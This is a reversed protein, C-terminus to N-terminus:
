APLRFWFRTSGGSSEVGVRGGAQEVLQRVIALGIGAGGSARTRSRDVRYFREFVHPLDAAPIEAGTNTVTVLVSDAELRASITVTGGPPTYRAANQLLNAMVQSVHDPVARGWLRDPLALRLQMGGRELAPGALEAAARIASALELDVTAPTASPGGEEALTDLSRSLRTLREVEERLSDLTEPATPIVGDRMGELYGTLNTLPTRLEHAFNAILDSRLREQQQLSEAMQNFSDALSTLEAPGQRSLRTAYDGAALRRAAAGAQEIPLSIRHALFLGLCVAIASGAAAAVTFVLTISHDFMAHANQTSSGNEVMLASFTAAGVVLVGVTLLGVTVAILGLSGLVIRSSLNTPSLLKKM